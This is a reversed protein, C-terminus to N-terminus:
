DNMGRNESNLQKVRVVTTYTNSIDEDTYVSNNWNCHMNIVLKSCILLYRNKLVKFEFVIYM